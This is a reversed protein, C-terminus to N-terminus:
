RIQLLSATTLKIKTNRSVQLLAQPARFSLPANSTGPFLRLLDSFCKKKIYKPLSLLRFILKTFFLTFLRLAAVLVSTARM